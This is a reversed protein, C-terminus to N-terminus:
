LSSDFHRGQSKDQKYSAQTTGHVGGPQVTLTIKITDDDEMEQQTAIGPTITSTQKLSADFVFSVKAPTRQFATDTPNRPIPNMITDIENTFTKTESIEDFPSDTLQLSSM